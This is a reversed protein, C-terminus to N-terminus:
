VDGGTECWDEIPGIVTDGIGRLKEKDFIIGRWSASDNITEESAHYLSEQPQIEGVVGSRYAILERTLDDRQKSPGEVLGESQKWTRVVMSTDERCIAVWKLTNELNTGSNVNKARQQLKHKATKQATAGKARLVRDLINASKSVYHNRTGWVHALTTVSKVKAPINTGIIRRAAGNRVTADIRRLEQTNTHTGFTALGYRLMSGLLAHTSVALVRCERGRATNSAETPTQLRNRPKM